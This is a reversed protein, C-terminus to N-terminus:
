LVKLWCEWNWRRMPLFFRRLTSQGLLGISNTQLEVCVYRRWATQIVLAAAHAKKFAHKRNRQLRAIFKRETPTLDMLSEIYVSLSLDNSIVFLLNLRACCHM